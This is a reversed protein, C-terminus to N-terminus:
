AAPEEKPSTLESPPTELATGEETSPPPVAEKQQAAQKDEALSQDPLVVTNEHNSTHAITQEEAPQDQATAPLSPAENQDQTVPPQSKEIPATETAPLTPTNETTSPRVQEEKKTEDAVPPTIREKQEPPNTETTPQKKEDSAPTPNEQHTPGTEKNHTPEKTESRKPEELPPTVKDDKRSGPDPIPTVPKEEKPKPLVPEQKPLEITPIDPKNEKLPPPLKLEPQKYPIESGTTVPKTDKPLVEVKVTTPPPTTQTPTPTPTPTDLPDVTLPKSSSSDGTPQQSKPQQETTATPGNTGISNTLHLASEPHEIPAGSSLNVNVEDDTEKPQYSLHAGIKSDYLLTSIPRGVKDSLEDISKNKIDAETLPIGSKKAAIFIAYKAPSVGIELARKRDENSMLLSTMILMNEKAKQQMLDNIKQEIQKKIQQSVDKNLTTTVLIEQNPKIYGQKRCISFIMDTVKEIPQNRWNNLQSLLKKGRANYTSIDHVLLHEDIEMEINADMDIGVYAYAGQGAFSHFQFLVLLIALTFAFVVKRKFFSGENARERRKREEQLVIDSGVTYPQGSIKVKHFVGDSLVIMHRRKVEVVIGRTM